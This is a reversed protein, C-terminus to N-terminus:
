VRDVDIQRQEAQAVMDATGKGGPFALVGVTHGKARCMELYDAMAANRIVGAPRGYTTWNAPFPKVRIDLEVCAEHVLTDAGPAAGHLVRLDEGYILKLVRLTEHVNDRDAYDRGGTTCVYHPM